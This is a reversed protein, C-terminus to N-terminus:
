LDRCSVATTYNSTTAATNRDSHLALLLYLVACMWDSPSSHSASLPICADAKMSAMLKEKRKSFTHKVVWETATIFSSSSLLLKLLQVLSSCGGGSHDEGAIVDASGFFLVTQSLFYLASTIQPRFWFCPSYIPLCFPPGVRGIQPLFSTFLIYALVVAPFRWWGLLKLNM